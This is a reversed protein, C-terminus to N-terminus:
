LLTYVVQPEPRWQGVPPEPPIPAGERLMDCQKVPVDPLYKQIVSATEKARTMSSQVLITYPKNLDKLRQGTYEAQEM